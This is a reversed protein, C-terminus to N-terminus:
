DHEIDVAERDPAAKTQFLYLVVSLCGRHLPLATEADQLTRATMPTPCERQRKPARCTRMDDAVSPSSSNKWGKLTPIPAGHAGALLFPTLM